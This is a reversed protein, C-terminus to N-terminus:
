NFVIKLPNPFSTNIVIVVQQPPMYNQVGGLTITHTGRQV